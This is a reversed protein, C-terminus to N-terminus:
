DLCPSPAQLDALGFAIPALGLIMLCIGLPKQSLSACPVAQLPQPLTHAYAQERSYYDHAHLTEHFAHSHTAAPILGTM